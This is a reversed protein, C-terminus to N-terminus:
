GEPPHPHQLGALMRGAAVASSSRGVGALRHLEAVAEAATNGQELLVGVAQHFNSFDALGTAEGALNPLTLDIDLIIVGPELGLALQVDAAFDVFAGPTAAYFVMVSGREPVGLTQLPITISTGADASSAAENLRSITVPQNETVVTVSLGLYSDVAVAASNGLSQFLAALDIEPRGLAETLAVLDGHFHSSEFM